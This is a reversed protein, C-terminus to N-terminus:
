KRVGYLAGSNPSKKKAEALWSGLTFFGILCIAAPRYKQEYFLGASFYIQGYWKKKHAKYPCPFFM